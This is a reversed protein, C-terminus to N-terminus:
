ARSKSNPVKERWVVSVLLGALIGLSVEVFRHLGTVWAPNDRKILFVISFAVAAFRVAPREFRLIVSLAGVTLIGAGYLFPNRSFCMAWVAAVSAGLATGALRQTSIALSSGFDSQMVIVASIPAWYYEALGLSRAAVVALFAAIATRMPYSMNRAFAGIRQMKM